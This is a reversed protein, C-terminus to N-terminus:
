KTGRELRRLRSKFSRETEIESGWLVVQTTDRMRRNSFVGRLLRRRYTPVTSGVDKISARITGFGFDHIILAQNLLFIRTHDFSWLDQVEEDVVTHKGVKLKFRAKNAISWWKEINTPMLFVGLLLFPKWPGARLIRPSPPKIYGKKCFGKTM